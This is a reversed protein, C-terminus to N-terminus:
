RAERFFVVEQVKGESTVTKYDLGTLNKLVDIVTQMSNKEFKVTIRQALLPQDAMKFKTGYARELQSFVSGLPENEFKYINDKWGFTELSDFLSLSSVDNEKDYKVQERPELVVTRDAKGRENRTVRVKGELLSV